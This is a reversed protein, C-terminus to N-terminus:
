DGDYREFMKTTEIIVYQKLKNIDRIKKVGVQSKIITTITSVLDSIDIPKGDEGAKVKIGHAIPCEEGPRLPPHLTSCQPCKSGLLGRDDM